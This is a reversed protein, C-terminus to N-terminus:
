IQPITNKNRNLKVKKKKGVYISTTQLSGHSMQNKLWLLNETGENDELYQTGGTHKGNYANKSIGLPIKVYERWLEAARTPAKRSDGPKMKHSFIFTEPGFGAADLSEIYPQLYVLQENLLEKYARKSNKHNDGDIRISRSSLDIDRRQIAMISDPRMYCYHIFLYYQWLEPYVKDTYLHKKIQQLEELTFLDDETDQEIEKARQIETFPDVKIIGTRRMWDFLGAAYDFKTNITKPAYGQDHLSNIYNQADVATFQEPAIKYKGKSELYETFLKLHSKYSSHTRTKNSNKLLTINGHKLADPLYYLASEPVAQAQHGPTDGTTPNWGEKLAETVAEAMLEAAEARTEIDPIRNLDFTPRFREFPVMVNPRWWFHVAFVDRKRYVFAPRYNLSTVDRKM